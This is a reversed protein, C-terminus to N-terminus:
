LNELQENSLEDTGRVGPAGSSADTEETMGVGLGRGVTNLYSALAGNGFAQFHTKMEGGAGSLAVGHMGIAVALDLPIGWIDQPGYRGQVVGLGFAAGGVEMATVVGEMVGEAEALANKARSQLSTIRKQMKMIDAKSISRGAILAM